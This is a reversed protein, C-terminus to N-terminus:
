ITADNEAKIAIAEKLIGRVVILCLGITASVYAVALSLLFFYGMAALPLAEAMVFCAIVTVLKLSTEGFIKERKVILLLRVLCVITVAAIAMAIYLLVLMIGIHALLEPRASYDLIYHELLPYLFVSLVAIGGLAVYCLIFSLTLAPRSPKM